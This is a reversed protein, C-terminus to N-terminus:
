DLNRFEAATLLAQCFSEFQNKELFEAALAREAESIERSFCLRFALEPDDGARKALGAARARVFESNMLYLAQLPVNTTERAGTVLSPEAFDFLDLVDPLRDRVVPLYVSRHAAGDLDDPLQKFFSFIGVPKDGLEAILSSEPRKLDLEGSAALMADRISEADLRRKPMRWLLRNEPDAEFAASRFESSQRYTRSSALERVLSKISWGNEIFRIALNDLLQQHSPREGNFGFNDATRVIGAGFLHLWVRNVIVRATLPHDPHTLWKAFELRGSASGPQAAEPLRIVAPFGRKVIEGPAALEGRELIPADAIAAGEGVGMCLPLPKGDDDVTKLQGEIAGKRWLDRLVNALSMQESFDWGYLFTLIMAGKREKERREIEALEARFKELKPQPIPKNPVTQDDLDPLRILDGGVQNGPAVSTGIFTKTSLFIGALGYYDAMTFPDTKHDHCRACAVTSAMFAKTATDIQEDAVDADYQERNMENLGRPGLALFGTAILLEARQEDNEAPLLDGALQEIVFRDFPKDANFSDIVYNRFRWAHPYTVNTEKGSSEAFRAVDLWHRGWREGFQESALLLEIEEALAADLGSKEIRTLFRAIREPAPPLGVLDFHLRRLLTRPDADPSPALGISELSALVFHDLDRRAWASNDTKPLPNRVPKQYAWFDPGARRIEGGGERPDPAGAEIWVRFDAIVDAPLRPKKPPMAFDPDAHTLAALILSKDPDGPAVAAGREGGARIAARSDLLLGGKSEDTEVSHCRYCHEILVPRIKSEFFALGAEDAFAAGPILFWVFCRLTKM